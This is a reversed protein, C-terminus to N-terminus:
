QRAVCVVQHGLVLHNARFVCLLLMICISSTTNLFINRHTHACLCVSSMYIYCVYVYMFIVVVSFLDTGLMHHHVGKIGVSPLCLCSSRQTYLALELVALATVYLFGTEFVGGGLFFFLRLFSTVFQLPCPFPFCSSM